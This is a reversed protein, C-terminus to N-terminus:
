VAGAQQTRRQRLLVWALAGVVLVLAVGLSIQRMHQELFTM